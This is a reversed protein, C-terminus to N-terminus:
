PTVDEFWHSGMIAFDLANIWCDSNLDEYITTSCVYEPETTVIELDDFYVTGSKGEANIALNIYQITQLLPNAPDLDIELTTWNKIKTGGIFTAAAAGAGATNFLTLTIDKARNSARGKFHIKVNEYITWDQPAGLDKRVTPQEDGSYDIKMAKAGSRVEQTELTQIPADAYDYWQVELSSTDNYSEFDDLAIFYQSTFSDQLWHSLLIDLDTLNVYGDWNFDGTLIPAPCVGTRAFYYVPQYAGESVTYYGCGNTEFCIAEGQPEDIQPVICMPNDFAQWLEGGPERQWALARTADGKTRILIVRGDLSVDGGVAMEGDILQVDAVHQMTYEVDPIHNPEPYHYVKMVGNDDGWRDRTCLYIDGTLPDVLITECGHHLSDPYRVLLADVGSLNVDVPDQDPSVNPEAVRYITFTFDTLGDNNGTDAVYLYDQRRVPGPGIAMDEWDRATAGTLNYTGLHTGQTNLAWLRALGGSDNHVWIVGPNDRSAAIGSVETLLGHAVTGVQVGNVFEPCEASVIASLQGLALLGAVILINFSNVRM